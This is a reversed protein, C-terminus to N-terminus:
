VTPEGGGQPGMGEFAGKLERVVVDAGVLDGEFEQGNKYLQRTYNWTTNQLNLGLDGSRDNIETLLVQVDKLFTWSVLANTAAATTIAASVLAPFQPGLVNVAKLVYPARGEAVAATNDKESPSLTIIQISNLTTLVNNLDALIAAQQAPSIVVSLNKIIAM